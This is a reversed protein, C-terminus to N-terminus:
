PPLRVVSVLVPAHDSLPGRELVKTAVTKLGTVFVQDV